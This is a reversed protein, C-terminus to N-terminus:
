DPCPSAPDRLWVVAREGSIKLQVIRAAAAASQTLPHSPGLQDAYLACSRSYAFFAEPLDGEAEAAAGDRRAAHAANGPGEADPAWASLYLAPIFAVISAFVSGRM